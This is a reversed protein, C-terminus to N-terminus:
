PLSREFFTQQEDTDYSLEARLLRNREREADLLFDRVPDPLFVSPLTRNQRLLSARIYCLALDLTDQETPHAIGFSTQLRHACDDALKARFKM